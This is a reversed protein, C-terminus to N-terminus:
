QINNKLNNFTYDIGTKLGLFDIGLDTFVGVYEKDEVIDLLDVSVKYDLLNNIIDCIDTLKVKDKYVCDIENISNKGLIFLNIIKLLDQMYIFDMFKDKHIILSKKDLYNIINSKIFRRNLENEDFVGFLRLNIFNDEKKIIESIHKKSMGYYSDPSYTEAGSGFTILKKYFSKSEYLNYFMKLNNDYITPSDKILRSGGEIACHIVIDFRNKKLFNFVENTELLNLEKRNISVVDYKNKYFNSISSGLYGGSGTVLIKM